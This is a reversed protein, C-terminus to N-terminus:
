SRELVFPIAKFVKVQDLFHREQGRGGRGLPIFFPRRELPSALAPLAWSVAAECGTM